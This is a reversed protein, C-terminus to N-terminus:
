RCTYIKLSRVKLQVMNSNFSSSKPSKRSICITSKITGYQFQFTLLFVAMRRRCQSKITGYQFQFTIIGSCDNFQKAKLQVMNSNFGM